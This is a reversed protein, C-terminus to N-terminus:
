YIFVKLGLARKIMAIQGNHWMEHQSCWLLAEKKTKAIPHAMGSSALPADLQGEDLNLLISQALERVEELQRLMKSPSLDYGKLEMPKSSNGFMTLYEQFPFIDLVEKQFGAICSISHYNKSIIMHGIQWMINTDIGVPTATWLNIPVDSVLLKTLNRAQQSQELILSKKSSHLINQEM